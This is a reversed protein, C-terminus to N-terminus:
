VITGKTLLKGKWRMISLLRPLTETYLRYLRPQIPCDWAGIHRIVEGGFGEKFRYVGWLPDEPTLEDPAGWLDYIKCGITKAFQIAEWQLLYNPMRERHLDSSMGYLFWAKGSFSFLILGAVIQEEIEAILPTAMGANMFAKWLSIYYEKERIVFGDRVSTKAYLHYLEVLDNEDGQRIRVGKRQALRINYRTKQKMRALLEDLDRTLDIVITNRFQIQEASFKWSLEKLDAIVEMGTENLGEHTTSPYGLGFNVDPDIKLFIAQHKYAFQSLGALIQKRIRPDNWEVLPGKPVYMVSYKNRFGPIPAKRQLVLAVACLGLEKEQWFIHHPIWGFQKKFQGWGWTQFVHSNSFSAVTSDWFDKAIEDSSFIIQEVASNSKGVKEPSIRFEM